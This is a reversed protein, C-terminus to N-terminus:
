PSLRLTGLLRLVTYNSAAGNADVKLCMKRGILPQFHFHTSTFGAANGYYAAVKSQAFAEFPHYQIGYTTGLATGTGIVYVGVDLESFYGSGDLDIWVHGNDSNTNTQSQATLLDEDAWSDSSSETTLVNGSRATVKRSTGRTTNHLLVKFLQSAGAPAFSDLAGTATVVPVQTASLTGEDVEVSGTWLTDSGLDIRLAEEANTQPVFARRTLLLCDVEGGSGGALCVAFVEPRSETERQAQGATTSLSLFHGASPATSTYKVTVRGQATVLVDNGATNGVLVACWAGQFRSTTTTRFEGESDIYGVDKAAVTGGSSNKVRLYPVDRLLNARTVKRSSGAADDTTDSKDVLYLWDDDAPATLETLGTLKTDSM